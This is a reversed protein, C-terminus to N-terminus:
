VGRAGMRELVSALGAMRRINYLDQNEENFAIAQSLMDVRDNKVSSPFRAHETVFAETWSEGEPLLVQGARIKPQMAMARTVKGGVPEVAILGSVSGILVNIVAEGNAKKEVLKEDAEPWDLALNNLDIVTDSFSRHKTLDSLVYVWADKFGIVGMGVRSNSELSGFACDVSIVIRDFENREVRPRAPADSCDKARYPANGSYWGWWVRKFLGGGRPAPSQQFQAATGYEGLAIKDREVVERTMRRPWLLEGEETRPDQFFEVGNIYTTCRHKSELEMPLCLYTYGLERALIDGAVDQEHVRQMIVIIASKEPDSLRTPVVESFWVTVAKRAADSEAEKINHPDDCNHLILGHGHGAVFNGGQVSICYTTEVGEIQRVLLPSRDTPERAVFDGAHTTNATQWTYGDGGVFFGSQAALDHLGGVIALPIGVEVDAPVVLGGGQPYGAANGGGEYAWAWGPLLNAVQVALWRVVREPIKGVSGSRLIDLVRLAVSRKSGSDRTALVLPSGLQGLLLDSLDFGHVVHRQDLDGSSEAHGKVRYPSNSVTKRPLVDLSTLADARVWGRRTWVRHDPTCRVSSGDSVEVQVIPSGPNTHWGTVPRYSGDSTKVDCRMRSEVLRRVPVPGRDTHVIEDAPLCVFRDGREGTGLGGVSTAIRFGGQMTDFRTKANQEDSLRVPWRRQYWESTVIARARRNDRVTLDQSYAASVYRLEPRGKPGWEWTPWFVNASLSKMCGPPVGILLRLIHGASVGELHDSIADLHWGPVFERHPEVVHWALRTYDRLSQSCEFRDLDYELSDLDVQDLLDPKKPESRVWGSPRHLDPLSLKEPEDFEFEVPELDPNM